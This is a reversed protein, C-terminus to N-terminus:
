SSRTAYAVAVGLLIPNIAKAYANSYGTLSGPQCQHRRVWGHDDRGRRHAHPDDRHHACRRRELRAHKPTPVPAWAGRSPTCTTPASALVQCLVSPTSPPVTAGDSIYADNTFTLKAFTEADDASIVGGGTARAVANIKHNSDVVLIVDDDAEITTGSGVYATTNAASVTVNTRVLGVQFAGGSGTNTSASVDSEGLATIRM